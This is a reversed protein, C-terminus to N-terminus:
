SEVVMNLQDTVNRTMARMAANSPKVEIAPVAAPMALIRKMTKKTSKTRESIKPRLRKYVSLCLEAFDHERENKLTTLM